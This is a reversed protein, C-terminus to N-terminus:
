QTTAIEQAPAQAVQPHTLALVIGMQVNLVHEYGRGRLEALRRTADVGFPRRYNNILQLDVKNPDFFVAERVVAGNSLLSEGVVLEHLDSPRTVSQVTGDGNL